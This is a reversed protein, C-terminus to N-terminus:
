EDHSPLLSLSSQLLSLFFCFPTTSVNNFLNDSITQNDVAQTHYSSHFFRIWGQVRDNRAGGRLVSIGPSTNRRLAGLELQLKMGQEPRM